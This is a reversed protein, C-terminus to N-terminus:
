ALGVAQRTDKAFSIPEVRQDQQPSTADYGVIGIHQQDIRSRHPVIKHPELVATEVFQRAHVEDTTLRPQIQLLEGFHTGKVSSPKNSRLPTPVSTASVKPTWKVTLPIVAGQHAPQTIGLLFGFITGPLASLM